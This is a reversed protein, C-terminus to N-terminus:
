NGTKRTKEKIQNKEKANDCRFNVVKDGGINWWRLNVYTTERMGNQKM